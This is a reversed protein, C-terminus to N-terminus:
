SHVCMSICSLIATLQTIHGDLRLTPRKLREEDIVYKVGRKWRVVANTSKQVPKQATDKISQLDQACITLAIALLSFSQQNNPTTALDSNQYSNAIRRTQEFLSNLQAIKDHLANLEKSADSLAALFTTTSKLLSGAFDVLQVVTAASGAAAALEM